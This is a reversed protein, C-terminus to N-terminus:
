PPPKGIAYARFGLSRLHPIDLIGRGDFVQLNALHNAHRGQRHQLNSQLGGFALTAVLLGLYLLGIKAWALKPQLV